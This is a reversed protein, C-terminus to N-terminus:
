QYRRIVVAKAVGYAACIFPFVWIMASASPVDIVKAAQLFGGAMYVMCVLATGISVAELEIRQQMEDVDRIYRVMARLVLAIPPVPLLAVLARVPTDLDARKLLLLSVIIAVAYASMSVAIERTYRRRLAAPATDCPSPLRWYMLAALGLGFAAGLLVGTVADPLGPILRPLLLGLGLSAAAMLALLRPSTPKM